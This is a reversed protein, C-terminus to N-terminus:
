HVNRIRGGGRRDRTLEGIWGDGEVRERERSEM